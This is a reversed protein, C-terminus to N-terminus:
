GKRHRDEDKVLWDRAEEQTKSFHVNLRMGKAILGATSKQLGTMGVFAIRNGPNERLAAAAEKARSVSEPAMTIGTADVLILCGGQEKLLEQKMETWAAIGDEEGMGATDMFLIQKGKHTIRNIYKGMKAERVAGPSLIAAPM